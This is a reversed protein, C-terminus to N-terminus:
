SHAAYDFHTQIYDEIANISLRISERDAPTLQSVSAPKNLQAQGDKALRELGILCSAFRSPKDINKEAEAIKRATAPTIGAYM